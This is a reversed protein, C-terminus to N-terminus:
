GSNEPGTLLFQRLRKFTLKKLFNEPEGEGGGESFTPTAWPQHTRYFASLKIVLQEFIERELFVQNM